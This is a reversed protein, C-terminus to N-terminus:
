KANIDTIEMEFSIKMHFIIPANQNDWIWFKSGKDTEGYLINVEKEIGDIKIKLKESSRLSLTEENYEPKIVIPRNAKLSRFVKTSLWITTMNTYTEKGPTFFNHQVTADSLAEPTMIIVGNTNGNKMSWDFEVLKDLNKLTVNFNYDNNVKYKLQTGKKLWTEDPQNSLKVFSMFLLSSVIM